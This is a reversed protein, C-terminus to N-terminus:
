QTSWEGAVYCFVVLENGSALTYAATNLQTTGNVNFTAGVGATSAYISLDNAGWNQITLRSNITPAVDIRATKSATVTDFRTYTKTISTANAQTTGTATINAESTNPTLSNIQAQLDIDQNELLKLDNVVFVQMDDNVVLGAKNRQGFRTSRIDNTTTTVM